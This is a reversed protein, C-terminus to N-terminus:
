LGSGVLGFHQGDGAGLGTGQGADLCTLTDWPCQVQHLVHASHPVGAGGKGHLVGGTAAVFVQGQVAQCPANQRLIQPLGGGLHRGGRAEQLRQRAQLAIPGAGCCVCQQHPQCM